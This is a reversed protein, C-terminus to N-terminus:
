KKGTQRNKQPKFCSNLESDKYPPYYQMGKYNLLISKPSILGTDFLLQAQAKNYEIISRLLQQRASTKETQSTLVDIFTNQGVDFGILSFKLGEDAAKVQIKNSDIKELATKSSYYSGVISEKIQRELNTLEFGATKIKALDANKQTLTGVGLKKGLPVEVNLSFTRNSSLSAATTGVRAFEFSLNINPAFDTYNKNKLNVLSRIQARKTQVDERAKLAVNYLCDISNKKQVLERPAVAHEFPYLTLTVNIGMINALQAQKLRLDNLASIFQQKADAFQAEARLIDYKSGIGIQYRAQMLKLQEQRDRMNSILVEINLKAELLDYYYLATKLLLESQTYKLNHKQAKYLNNTSAIDFLMSGNGVIPYNFMVGSYVPNQDVVRPLIDGVLFEGHVSQIQYRYYVDPLLQSLANYYAWKAENKQADAIKIDYNNKLATYICGELDVPLLTINLGQKIQNDLNIQTSKDFAGYGEKLSNLFNDDHYDWIMGSDGGCFAPVAFFSHILIILVIFKILAKMQAGNKFVFHRYM